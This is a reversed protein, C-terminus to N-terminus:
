LNFIEVLRQLLEISSTKITGGIFEAPDPVYSEKFIKEMMSPSTKIVCDAEGGEPKGKHIYCSQGDVEISWKSIDDNGLSFYYRIKDTLVGAVFKPELYKFMAEVPHMAPKSKQTPDFEKLNFVKSDRLAEVARQAMLAVAKAAEEPRLGKVKERIVGADLPPGIRITLDRKAPLTAGKPYSEYSGSIHMPLIDVYHDLALYGVGPKFDAMFGTTSRTGEPFILLPKGLGVARSAEELAKRGGAQRDIPVVNTLNEFYARTWRKKPSFFYDKAGLTVVDNGYPGLAYKLAGLDLHSCHNSVAIVPRNQPIFAQGVVKTRMVKEYFGLQVSRMWDKLTERVPVPLTIPAEPEDQIKKTLSERVQKRNAEAEIDAVTVANLIRDGDVPPLGQQRRLNDLTTALEARMLSDFGLDEELKTHATLQDVPVGAVLAISRRVENSTGKEEGTQNDSAALISEIIKLCDKRKVKRTATRPLDADYFQIVAPRMFSPLERIAVRLSDEARAIRTARDVGEEKTPVALCAVREGGRPAPIGLITLEKVHKPTGLMSEVDDPYVNEGAASVIVEKARGVITLRGKHDIKGLDGTRLWGDETITQQTAEENDAYGIMVNDGRAWVEGVGNADPNAIKVSVGAVPKGVHGAKASPSGKAVTLVPAAETLGYGEALHLGLGQFLKHTDEPLAAGGSVMYKLSGGLARHVTGFLLRGADLGVKQGLTRNLSAAFDFIAKAVEGRESVQSTIKRELMQWLAPVGVMATIRGVKLGKSLRDGNLEDLYTIRAGRSVPLLMGCTFEFTHHLPLVSLASDGTHLPFVPTLSALLATFNKHTLMVGKPNGTTGSTYILSALDDDELVVKPLNMPGPAAAQSLGVITLRKLEQQIFEGNKKEVHTDFIAIKAKSAAIVNLMQAPEMEPDIPVATAGARLIGFYCVVWYPHNKASIVVRDNPTVGLEYLRAACAQAREYVDRYSLRWLENGELRQLAVALDHREAVEELLSWLNEHRKVVKEKTKLKEDFDEEVWRELGAIHVELLYDRWDIKEPYWVLKARDDEPLSDYVERTNDCRFVYNTDHIFPMFVDLIEASIGAIKSYGEIAKTASKVPGELPGVAAKKLVDAAAKTYRSIAGAGQREYVEKSVAVGEFSAQIKDILANNSWGARFRRRKYLGVLEILRIMKVPNTDSSALQYVTKSTGNLLAALSMIMGSCVMDVPIIDLLQEPTTPVQVHGKLVMMIIPTSTNIDENWGPFPYEISTEVVAPRCITFRLGSNALVQEGISKTYTYTNAWGWFNAREVGAGSLQKRIFRKKVQKLKEELVPGRTPEGNKKLESLADDLFASQRFADDCRHRAATVMDVCEAIEREPSWHSWDLEDARPFPYERPDVEKIVGGRNGAVYCTSTHFIPVDGLLKATNILNQVGFANTNLAEDLPPNFDVLGAVNVLAQVRGRMEQLLAEPVGLNESEIDGPVPTIKGSMFQHFGEGPYQARLPDFVPSPLIQSNLREKSDRGEKPRVLLYIHGINPFRHLLLSVWVKGLFGTGGIVFLIKGQFTQTLNLTSM